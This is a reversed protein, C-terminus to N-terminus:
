GFVWRETNEWLVDSFWCGVHGDADRGGAAGFGDSEAACADGEECREVHHHRSSLLAEGSLGEFPCGSPLSVDGEELRGNLAGDLLDSGGDGSGDLPDFVSKGQLLDGLPSISPDFLVQVKQPNLM